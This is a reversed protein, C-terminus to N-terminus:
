EDRRRLGAQEFARRQLDEAAEWDAGYRPLVLTICCWGQPAGIIKRHEREIRACADAVQQRQMRPIAANGAQTLGMGDVLVARAAATTHPKLRTKSAALDFEEPSM